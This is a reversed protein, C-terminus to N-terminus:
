FRTEQHLSVPFDNKSDAVASTRDFNNEKEFAERKSFWTRVPSLYIDPVDYKKKKFFAIIISAFYGVILCIFFGISSIWMYSIPIQLTEEPTEITSNTPQSTPALSYATTSNMIDFEPCENSLSLLASKEKRPSFSLFAAIALSTVFGIITGEENSAKTSVALIFVGLNPGAFMGYIIANMKILSGISSMVFAFGICIAGYLLCIIKTILVEHSINPRMPRIFDEVTVAALSNLISSITSLSASFIGAICLGPLAPYAQMTRTIFYPMIQDAAQIPKNPATLPDCHRFYAYFIIGTLCCLVHLAVILPISWFITKRSESLSKLTLMRQVQVQSGGYSSITVIMGLLFINIMTYQSAMDMSFKPLLIRGGDYAEKFVNELGDLDITGKIIIAFLCIFMLVAQFSDTWLVAKMGGLTCYFTCVVGITIISVWLSIDTVANLALAPAYLTASNFLIEYVTSIDSAFYVPLFVYAAIIPGLIFGINMFLMNTGYLYTDVPIGMLTTASMFTAMTSLIVPFVPMNRGALLYEKNTNGNNIFQFLLGIISSIVLAAGIVIYDAFTLTLKEPYM